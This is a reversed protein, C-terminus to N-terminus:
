SSIPNPPQANAVPQQHNAASRSDQITSCTSPQSHHTPQTAPRQTLPQQGHIACRSYVAPISWSAPQLAAVTLQSNPQSNHISQTPPERAVPQKRPPQRGRITSRSDHITPRSPFQTFAPHSTPHSLRRRLVWCQAPSGDSASPAAKSPDWGSSDLGCARLLSSEEEARNDYPYSVALCAILSVAHPPALVWSVNVSLLGQVNIAFVPTHHVIYSSESREVAVAQVRLGDREGVWGPPM